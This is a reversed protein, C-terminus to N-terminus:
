YALLKIKQVFTELNRKNEPNEMKKTAVTLLWDLVDKRKLEWAALQQNRQTSILSISPLKWSIKALRGPNEIRQEVAKPSSGLLHPLTIIDCQVEKSRFESPISSRSPKSKKHISKTEHSRKSKMCM